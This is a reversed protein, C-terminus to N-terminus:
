SIHRFHKLYTQSAQSIDSLQIIYTHSIFLNHIQYKQVRGVIEMLNYFISISSVNRFIGSIHRQSKGSTQRIYTLYVQSKGSFHRVYWIHRQYTQSIISIYRLYAQSVVTFHNLHIWSTGKTHRLYVQSLTHYKGSICRLYTM